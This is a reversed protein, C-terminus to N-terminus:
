RFDHMLKGIDTEGEYEGNVYLIHEGDNFAEEIPKVIRDVMYLPEGAKYFDNETIFITYTDPLEEFEQGAKLNEVDMSSSHYRARHPRAGSEAKQIEIDYKKGASDTAYVDLCLSKAGALRKMDYQTVSDTIVLDDIGTVIRIVLQALPINQRFLLRMFEDDIPRFRQIKQLTEEYRQEDTKNTKTSM